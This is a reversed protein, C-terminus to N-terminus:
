TVHKYKEGLGSGAQCVLYAKRSNGEMWGGEERCAHARVRMCACVCVCRELSAHTTELIRVTGQQDVAVLEGSGLGNLYLRPYSSSRKLGVPNTRHLVM